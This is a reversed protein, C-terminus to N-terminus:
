GRRHEHMVRKQVSEDLALHMANVGFDVRYVSNRVILIGLRQLERLAVSFAQRSIPLIPSCGAYAGTHSATHGEYFWKTPIRREAQGFRATRDMVAQVIEAQTASLFRRWHLNFHQIAGQYDPLSKEQGAVHASM